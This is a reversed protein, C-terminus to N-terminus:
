NKTATIVCTSSFVGSIVETYTISNGDLEASIMTGTPTAADFVCENPTIPDMIVTSSLATQYRIRIADTGSATIILTVEEQSGNCDIIGNYTGRWAEQSCPVISDDDCSSWSLALIMFSFFSVRIFDM